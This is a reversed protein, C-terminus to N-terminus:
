LLFIIKKSKANGKKTNNGRKTKERKIILKKRVIPKGQGFTGIEPMNVSQPLNSNNGNSGIPFSGIKTENGTEVQIYGKGRNANSVRHSNYYLNNSM